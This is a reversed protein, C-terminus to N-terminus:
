HHRSANLLAGRSVGERARVQHRFGQASSLSQSLIQSPRFLLFAGSKRLYRKCRTLSQFPQSANRIRFHQLGEVFADIFRVPNDAAVYDDTAEPLLLLQSREFGSIHTM